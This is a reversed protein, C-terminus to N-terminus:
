AERTYFCPAKREGTVIILPTLQWFFLFATGVQLFSVILKLKTAIKGAAVGKAISSLISNLYEMDIEKDSITISECEYLPEKPHLRCLTMIHKQFGDLTSHSFNVFIQPLHKDEIGDVFLTITARHSGAGSM